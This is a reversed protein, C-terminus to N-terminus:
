DGGCGAIVAPSHHRLGDVPFIRIQKAIVAAAADFRRIRLASGHTRNLDLGELEGGMPGAVEDVCVGAAQIVGVNRCSVAPPIFGEAALGDGAHIDCFIRVEAFMVVGITPAQRTLHRREGEQDMLLTSRHEAVVPEM